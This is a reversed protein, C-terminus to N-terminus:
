PKALPMTYVVDTRIIYKAGCTVGSGEHLLSGATDGHPFVMVCGERPKVPYSNMVGERQPHPLFYTTAGGEFDENLYLLFTLRSRRDGHMDYVYKGDRMGSNPWAGDIHPRYTLGPTYRYVRWRANIGTLRCVSGDSAILETPLFPACRAFLFDMMEEDALWFFNDALKSKSAELPEDPTFGMTECATRIQRCEDRSLVDLMIFAGPVNPTAIKTIPRPASLDVTRPASLYITVDHANPPRRAAGREHAVMTFSSRFRAQEAADEPSHEVLPLDDKAIWPAHRIVASDSVDHTADAATSNPDVARLIADLAQLILPDQRDLLEGGAADAFRVWRQLAGLKPMKGKLRMERLDRIADAWRGAALADSIRASYSLSRNTVTSAPTNAGQVSGQVNILRLHNHLTHLAGRLPKCEKDRLLDPQRAILNLTRITCAFDDSSISNGLFKSNNSASPADLDEDEEDANHSASQTSSTVTPAQAQTEAESDSSEREDAALASFSANIRRKKLLKGHKGM